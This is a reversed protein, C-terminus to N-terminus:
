YATEGSDAGDSLGVLAGMIDGVNSSTLLLDEDNAWDVLTKIVKDVDMLHYRIVYNHNTDGCNYLLEWVVPGGDDDFEQDGNGSYFGVSLHSVSSAHGEPEAPHFDFNLGYISDGFRKDM